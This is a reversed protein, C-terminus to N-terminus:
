KSRELPNWTEPLPSLAQAFIQAATAGSNQSIYTALAPDVFFAGIAFQITTGGTSGPIAIAGPATIGGSPSASATAATRFPVITAVSMQSPSTATGSLSYLLVMDYASTVPAGGYVTTGTPFAGTYIATSPQGVQQTAPSSPNPQFIPSVFVNKSINALDITGQGFAGLSLVSLGAALILKKM